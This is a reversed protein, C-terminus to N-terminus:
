FDRFCYYLPYSLLYMARVILISLNIIVVFVLLLSGYHHQWKDTLHLLLRILLYRSSRAVGHIVLGDTSIEFMM